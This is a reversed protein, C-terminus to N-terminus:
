NKNRILNFEEELEICAQTCVNELQQVLGPIGDTLQQTSAYDQIKKAMNEFDISIGMIAFSPIMKHVASYLSNWDKDALGKKMALILPPTQELYLSIMEMMLAPNSKTRHILYAMDICKIKKAEESHLTNSTDYNLLVPKKVLGVIKHYLLREDIPKAIYDNM